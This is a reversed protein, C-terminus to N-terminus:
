NSEDLESNSYRISNNEIGYDDGEEGDEMAFQEKLLQVLRQITEDKIQILKEADGLKRKLDLNEFGVIANNNNSTNKTNNNRNSNKIKNKDKDKTHSNYNNLNYFDLPLRYPNSSPLLMLLDDIGEEGQEESNYSDIGEGKGEKGIEEVRVM